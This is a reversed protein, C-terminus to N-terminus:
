WHTINLQEIELAADVTSRYNSYSSAYCMQLQDAPLNPDCQVPHYLHIIDPDASRILELHPKTRLFQDYLTVDEKGWGHISLDMGIYDSRYMAVMGYGFQRWYGQLEKRGQPDM